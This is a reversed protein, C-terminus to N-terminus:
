YDSNKEYMERAYEKILSLFQSRTIGLEQAAGRESWEDDLHEEVINRERAKM